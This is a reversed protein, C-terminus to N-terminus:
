STSVKRTARDFDGASEYVYVFYESGRGAYPRLSLFSTLYPTHSLDQPSFFCRPNTPLEALGAMPVIEDPGGKEIRVSSSLEAGDRGRVGSPLSTESSPIASSRRLSFGSLRPISPPSSSGSRGGAGLNSARVLSPASATQSTQFVSSPAYESITFTPEDVGTGAGDGAAAGEVVAAAALGEVGAGEGKAAGPLNAAAVDAKPPPMGLNPLGAAEAKPAGDKPADANPPTGDAKAGVLGPIVEAKPDDAKPLAEANPDTADGEVAEAKPPTGDADAGVFCLEVEAKPDEANPLGEANPETADGEAAEAKELSAPGDTAAVEGWDCVVLVEGGEGAGEDKAAVFSDSGGLTLEGVGSGAGEGATIAGEVVATAALGEVGVGDGKAAEPLGAAAMDAKPSPMGFNPAEAVEAKPADDKPAEANPPVVDAKAGVLGLAVDAKPADAKPDNGDAKAGELGAVEDGNPVGGANPVAAAAEEGEAKAVALEGKPTALCGM